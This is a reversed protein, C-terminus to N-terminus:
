WGRGIAHGIAIKRARQELVAVREDEAQQLARAHAEAAAIRARAATEIAADDVADWRVDLEAVPIEAPQGDAADAAGAAGTADAAARRARSLAARERRARTKEDEALLEAAPPTDKPDSAESAAEAALARKVNLVARLVCRRIARAKTREYECEKVLTSEFATRFCSQHNMARLLPLSSDTGVEMVVSACNWVFSALQCVYTEEPFFAALKPHKRSVDAVVHDRLRACHDINPDFLSPTDPTESRRLILEMGRPTMCIRHLNDPHLDDREAPWVDRLQNLKRARKNKPMTGQRNEPVPSHAHRAPHAASPLVVPATKCANKTKVGVGLEWRDM